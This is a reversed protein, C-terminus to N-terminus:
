QLRAPTAIQNGRWSRWEAALKIRRSNPNSTAWATSPCASSPTVCTYASTSRCAARCTMAFIPHDAGRMRPRKSRPRPLPVANAGHGAAPDHRRAGPGPPKGKPPKRHGSCPTRLQGLGGFRRTLRGPQVGLHHTFEEVPEAEMQLLGPEVARVFVDILGLP